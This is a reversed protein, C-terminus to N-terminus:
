VKEKDIVFSYYFALYAACDILSDAKGEFNPSSKSNFLSEIRQIKTMIMHIYSFDEFPFYNIRPDDLRFTEDNAKNSNYDLTKKRLISFTDESINKDTLFNYYDKVVGFIYILEEKPIGSHDIKQTSVWDDIFYVLENVYTCEEAYQPGSFPFNGEYDEFLRISEIM